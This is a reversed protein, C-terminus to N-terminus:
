CQGAATILHLKETAPKWAPLSCHPTVAMVMKQQNPTPRPTLAAARKPWFVACVQVDM